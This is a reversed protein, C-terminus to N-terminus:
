EAIALTDEVVARPPIARWQPLMADNIADVDAPSPSVGDREWRELLVVARRDWFAVHALAAAVTWGDGIDRRLDDDSLQGVLARLRKQAVANGDIISQDM